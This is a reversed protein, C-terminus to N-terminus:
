VRLILLPATRANTTGGPNQTPASHGDDPLFVVVPVTAVVAVRGADRGEERLFPGLTLVTACMTGAASTLEPFTRQAIAEGCTMTESSTDCWALCLANIVPEGTLTLVALLVSISAM